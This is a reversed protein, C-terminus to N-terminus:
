LAFDCAFCGGSRRSTREARDSLLNFTSFICIPHTFSHLLLIPIKEIEFASQLVLFFLTQDVDPLIYGM